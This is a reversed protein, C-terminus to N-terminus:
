LASNAVAASLVLSPDAPKSQRCIWEARAEAVWRVAFFPGGQVVQVVDGHELLVEQGAKVRSGAGDVGHPRVRVANKSTVELRLRPPHAEGVGCAGASGGGGVVVSALFAKQSVRANGALGLSYRGIELPATSASVVVVVGEEGTPSLEFFGTPGSM